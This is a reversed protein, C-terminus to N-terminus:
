TDDRQVDECNSTIIDGDGISFDLVIDIGDGCNFYDQGPGGELIDDGFSGYIFDNRNGGNLYDDEFGGNLVDNGNEGSLMDSSTGGQLHDEGKGGYLEDTGERSQIIDDNDKGYIGDPGSTGITVGGQETALIPTNKSQSLISGEYSSSVSDNNCENTNPNHQNKSFSKVTTDDLKQDNICIGINLNEDTGPNARAVQPSIDASSPAPNDDDIEESNITPILSSSSPAENTTSSAEKSISLPATVTQTTSMDPPATGQESDKAFVDNIHKFSSVNLIVIVVIIFLFPFCQRRSVPMM